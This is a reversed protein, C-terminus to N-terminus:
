YAAYRENSIQIEHFPSFDAREPIWVGKNWSKALRWGTSKVQRQQKENMGYVMRNFIRRLNNLRWTVGTATDDHFLGCNTTPWCCM